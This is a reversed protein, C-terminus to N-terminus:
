SFIEHEGVIDLNQFYERVTLADKADISNFRQQYYFSSTNSLNKFHHQQEVFAISTGPTSNITGKYFSQGALCRLLTTKGSGSPGVIAYQRNELIEFCLNEFIIKAQLSVSLDKAQLLAM